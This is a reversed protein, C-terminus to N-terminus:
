NNITSTLSVADGNEAMVSIHATGHDWKQNEQGYFTNPYTSDDNIKSRINNIYNDDQLDRYL